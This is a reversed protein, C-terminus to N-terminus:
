ERGQAKVERRGMAADIAGAGTKGPPRLPIEEFTVFQGPDIPRLGLKERALRDVRDPRLLNAKEATLASIDATAREIQRELGHVRSEIERSDYKLAYLAFASLLTAALAAITTTRNM